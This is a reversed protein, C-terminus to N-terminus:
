SNKMMLDMAPDHYVGLMEELVEGTMKFAEFIGAKGSIENLFNPYTVITGKNNFLGIKCIM